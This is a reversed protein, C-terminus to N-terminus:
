AADGGESRWARIPARERPAHELGYHRALLRLAIKLVIKGSRRPWALASEAQELGELYCCVSLAVDSLGPGLVALARNLRRKADLAAVHAMEAGHSGRQERSVPVGADSTVRPSLGAQTFDARLREGAALESPSLFPKGDRDKRTALWTLPSEALDIEVPVETGDPARVLRRVRTARRALHHAAPTPVRTAKEPGTTLFGRRELAAVLRAPLRLPVGDGEAIFASADATERLVAGRACLAALLRATARDVVPSRQSM